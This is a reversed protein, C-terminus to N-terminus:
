RKWVVSRSSSPRSTLYATLVFGDEASVERYPVVLFKTTLPTEEFRRVALLEGSDGQQILDPEAVTELVQPRMSAVEPHNDVVHTWREETLRIPVGGQSRVIEL